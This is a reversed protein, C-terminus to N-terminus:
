WSNTKARGWAEVIVEDWELRNGLKTLQDLPELANSWDGAEAMRVAEEYLEGLMLQDPYKAKLILAQKLKKNAKQKLKAQRRQNAYWDRLAQQGRELHTECGSWDEDRCHEFAKRYIKDPMGTKRAIERGLENIRILYHLRKARRQNFAQLTGSTGRLISRAVEYYGANYALRAGQYDEIAWAKRLEPHIETKLFMEKASLLASDMLAKDAQQEKVIAQRITKVNSLGAEGDDAAIVLSVCADTATPAEPSRVCVAYQAPDCVEIFEQTSGLCDEYWMPLVYVHIHKERDRPWYNVTGQVNLVIMVTNPAEVPVTSILGSEHLTWSCRENALQESLWELGRAEPKSLGNNSTEYPMLAKAIESFEEDM